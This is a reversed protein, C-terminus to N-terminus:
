RLRAPSPSPAAGVCGANAQSPRLAASAAAELHRSRPVPHPSPRTSLRPCLLGWLGRGWTGPFAPLLVSDPVGPSPQTGPSPLEASRGKAPQRGAMESTSVPKKGWTGVAVGKFAPERWLVRRPGTRIVGVNAGQLRQPSNGRAQHNLFVRVRDGLEPPWDGSATDVPVFGDRCVCLQLWPSPLDGHEGPPALASAM